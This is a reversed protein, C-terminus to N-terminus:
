QAIIDYHCNTFDTNASVAHDSEANTIDQYQLNSLFVILAKASDSQAKLNNDDVEIFLIPKFKRLLKEAGKLVKLEYGEVDIKILNIKSLHNIQEIDELRKIEVTDSGKTKEVAIRNAGRNSAARVEIQAQQPIEGLGFPLVTVNAMKNLELNKKCQSFNYPDPEFGIIQGTKSLQGLKLVTWGTNAGVDIVNYGEKCLNFLQSLENKFAFYYAYGMYDSIDVHLAIGDRTISRWSPHHYQYHIPMIKCWFNDTPKGKTKSALFRELLPIKFINRFFNLFRTRASLQM